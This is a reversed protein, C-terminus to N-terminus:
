PEVWIEGARVSLKYRRITMESDGGICQGSAIDFRWSHGSCTVITGDCPAGVLSVTRHPCEDPVAYFGLSTHFVAIDQTGLRFRRSEGQPIEDARALRSAADLPM